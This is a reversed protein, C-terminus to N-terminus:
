WGPALPSAPYTALGFTEYNELGTIKAVFKGSPYAYEFITGTATYVSNDKDNLTLGQFGAVPFSYLPRGTHHAYVDLRNVGRITLLNGANDLLLGNTHDAFRKLIARSNPTIEGLITGSSFFNGAFYLDGSRDTALGSIGDGALGSYVKSPETAGAAYVFIDATSTAVFVTGQEGVAVAVAFTGRTDLRLSATTAGLPFVLVPAGFDGQAVYLTGHTDVALGDPADLGSIQGVLPQAVGPVGALYMNVFGAGGSAPTASVYLLYADPLTRGIAAAAEPKLWARPSGQLRPAFRSPMRAHAFESVTLPRAPIVASATTAASAAVIGNSGFAGMLAIALTLGTSLVRM